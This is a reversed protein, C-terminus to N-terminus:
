VHGAEEGPVGHDRHGKLPLIWNEGNEKRVVVFSGEALYADLVQLRVGDRIDLSREQQVLEHALGLKAVRFFFYGGARRQVHRELREEVLGDKGLGLFGDRFGLNDDIVLAQSRVLLHHQGDAHGNGMSVRHSPIVVPARSSEGGGLIGSRQPKRFENCRHNVVPQASRDIRVHLVRGADELGELHVAQAVDDVGRAGIRVLGSVREGYVKQLIGILREREAAAVAVVQGYEVARQELGHAYVRRKQRYGAM